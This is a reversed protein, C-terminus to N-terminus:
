YVKEHMHENLLHGRVYYARDGEQRYFLHNYVTNTEKPESGEIGKRTLPSAGMATALVGGGISKLMHKIISDPLGGDKDIGFLIAVYESLERTM